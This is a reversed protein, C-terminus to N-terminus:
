RPSSAAHTNETSRRIKGSSIQLEHTREKPKESPTRGPPLLGSSSVLMAEEKMSTEAPVSAEAPPLHSQELFSKEKEVLNGWERWNSGCGVLFRELVDLSPGLKSQCTSKYQCIAIIQSTELSRLSRNGRLREMCRGWLTLKRKWEPLENM